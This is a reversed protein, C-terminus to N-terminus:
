PSFACSYRPSRLLLRAKLSSPEPVGFRLAAGFGDSVLDGMRDRVAIEVFLEPHQALLPSLRPM